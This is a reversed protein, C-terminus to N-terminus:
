KFTSKTAELAREKVLIAKLGDISLVDRARHLMRHCNACVISLDSQKTKEGHKMKSVPKTHHCEAFQNGLDGYVSAFDFDCVECKLAMHKEFVDKKKKRIISKDREYYKHLAHMIGGESAGDDSNLHHVETSKLTPYHERILSANRKLNAVDVSFENWIDQELRAGQHLGAGTYTPDYALFNGLKMAVGNPNRFNPPRLESSHIPLDQLLESLEVVGPHSVNGRAAPASHYLDLALILEDRTWNFRRYTTSALPRCLQCNKTFDSFGLETIWDSLDQVNDACVKIYGNGTFCAPHAGNKAQSITGCKALHLVLYDSSPQNYANLVYGNSHQSLWSLYAPENEKFVLAVM